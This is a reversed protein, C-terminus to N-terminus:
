QRVGRSVVWHLGRGGSIRTPKADPIKRGWKLFFAAISAENPQGVPACISAECESDGDITVVFTIVGLTGCFMKDPRASPPLKALTQRSVAMDCYPLLSTVDIM